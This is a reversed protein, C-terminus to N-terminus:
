VKRAATITILVMRLPPKITDTLRDFVVLTQFVIGALRKYDSLTKWGWEYGDLLSGISDEFDVVREL